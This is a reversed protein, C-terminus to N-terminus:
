EKDTVFEHGAGNVSIEIRGDATTWTGENEACLVAKREDVHHWIDIANMKTHFELDFVRDGLDFIAADSNAEIMKGSRRLIDLRVSEKRM